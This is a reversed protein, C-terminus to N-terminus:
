DIGLMKRTKTILFPETLGRVEMIHEMTLGFIGDGYKKKLKEYKNDKSLFLMEDDDFLIVWGAYFDGEDKLTVRNTVQGKLRKIAITLEKYPPAIPSGDTNEGQYLQRTTNMSKMTRQLGPQQLTEKVTVPMTDRVAELQQILREFVIM